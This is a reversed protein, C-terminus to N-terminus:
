IKFSIINLMRGTQRNKQHTSRRHSFFISSNKYTDRSINYINKINETRIQFNILGRFNFLDKNKNKTKFFNSYKENKNIFKNKFNKNVEFNSFGLCPGIVVVIDKTKIKKSKFIKIGKGVINNLTGRWGSHLCCILRQKTDYIYIPACDATLIGLAIEKDNTILGDGYHNNKYNKSNIKIIKNSHTQNVLKLKKNEINLKKKAILLNESVNKKIDDNNKSCNLSKYNGKSVGGNSTFFGLNIDKRLKFIDLYINKM